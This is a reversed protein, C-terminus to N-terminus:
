STGTGVYVVQVLPEVCEGGAAKEVKSITKRQHSISPPGVPEEQHKGTMGDKTDTRLFGSHSSAKKHGDERHQESRLDEHAASSVDPGNGQLWRPKQFLKPVVVGRTIVAM